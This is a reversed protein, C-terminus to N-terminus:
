KLESYFGGDYSYYSVYDRVYGILYKEPPGKRIV